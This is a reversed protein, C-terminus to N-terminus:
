AFHNGCIQEIAEIQKETLHSTQKGGKTQRVINVIFQREWQSVDATGTLADIQQIMQGISKM